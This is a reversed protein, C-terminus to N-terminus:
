PGESSCLSSTQDGLLHFIKGVDDKIPGKATNISVVKCGQKDTGGHTKKHIRHLGVRINRKVLASPIHKFSTWFSPFGYRAPPHHMSEAEPQQHILAAKHGQM